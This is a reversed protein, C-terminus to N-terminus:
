TKARAITEAIKMELNPLLSLPAVSCRCGFPFIASFGRM